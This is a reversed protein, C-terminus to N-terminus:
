AKHLAARDLGTLYSASPPNRFNPRPMSVPVVEEPSFADVLSPSQLSQVELLSVAFGIIPLRRPVLPAHISLGGAGLSCGAEDQLINRCIYQM